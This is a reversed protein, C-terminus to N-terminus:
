KRWSVIARNADKGYRAPVESGTAATSGSDSGAAVSSAFKCRGPAGVACITNDSPIPRVTSTAIARTSALRECSTSVRMGASAGALGRFINGGGIVLCVQKGAMALGKIDRALKAVTENHLGYTAPGMLGEGSIKLSM